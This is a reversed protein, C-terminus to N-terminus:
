REDGQESPRRNSQRKEYEAKTPPPKSGQSPAPNHMVVLRGCDPCFTPGAKGMRANVLVPTPDEKVKGDATWYCLDAPYGSKNGSPATVPISDGPSLTHEFPKGTTADMFVRDRSLKAGESPGLGRIVAFIAIGVVLVLAGIAAIQGGSTQLLDRWGSQETKAKSASTPKVLTAKM